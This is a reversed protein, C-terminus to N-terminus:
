DNEIKISKKNSNACKRFYIRTLDGAFNPGLRNLRKPTKANIPHLCVSVCLIYM